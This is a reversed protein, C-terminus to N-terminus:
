RPSCSAESVQNMWDQSQGFVSDRDDVLTADHTGSSHSCPLPIFPEAAEDSSVSCHCATDPEPKRIRCLWLLLPALGVGALLGAFVGIVQATSTHDSDLPSDSSTLWGGLIALALPLVFIILAALVLTRGQFWAHSEYTQRAEQLMPCASEGHCHGCGEWMRELMKM